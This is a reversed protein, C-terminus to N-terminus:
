RKQRYRMMLGLALLFSIGVLAFPLWSRMPGGEINTLTVDTPGAYESVVINDFAVRDVAWDGSWGLLGIRGNVLSSNADEYDIKLSGDVSARIRNNDFVWTLHYWEGIENEFFAAALITHQGAEERSLTVDNFPVNRLNLAYWNEEDVYRAVIVKDVGAEGRVDVEYIFDAWAPDGAVSYGELGVGTGMEVVYENNVVSWSGVGSVEWGDANGDNFDDQFLIPLTSSQPSAYAKVPHTSVFRSFLLFVLIGLLFGPSLVKFKKLMSKLFPFM